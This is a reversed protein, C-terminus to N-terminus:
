GGSMRTTATCVCVLREETCAGFWSVHPGSGAAAAAAAAMASVCCSHYNGLRVQMTSDRLAGNPVSRVFHFAAISGATVFVPPGARCSAM